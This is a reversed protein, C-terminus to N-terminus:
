SLKKSTLRKTVEEKSLSIIIDYIGQGIKSGTLAIRLPQGVGKFNINNSISYDVEIQFSKAYSKGDLNYFSLEGQKEWDVVIQNDFDTVYYDITIDGDQNNLNFGQRFSLGYNLAKEPNLGYFNGNKNTLNITRGTSFIEQNESFINSAKRGSGISFRFVSKDFPKPKISGRRSSSSKIASTSLISSDSSFRLQPVPATPPM